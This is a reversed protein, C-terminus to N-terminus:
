ELEGSEANLLKLSFYLTAGPAVGPAVPVDGYGAIAPVVLERAEGVRMQRLAEEWAPIMQGFRLTLPQAALVEEILVGDITELRYSVTLADHLNPYDGEGVELVRFGVGLESRETNEGALYDEFYAAGAARAAEVERKIQELQKKQLRAFVAGAKEAAQPNEGTLGASVGEWLADQNLQNWGSQALSVGLEYGIAYSADERDQEEPPPSCGVLLLAAICASLRKM